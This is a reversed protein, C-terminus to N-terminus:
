KEEGSESVGPASEDEKDSDPVVSLEPASGQSDEGKHSSGKKRDGAKLLEVLEDPSVMPMGPRPIVFKSRTSNKHVVMRHVVALHLIRTVEEKLKYSVPQGHSLQTCAASVIQSETAGMRRNHTAQYIEEVIDSQPPM